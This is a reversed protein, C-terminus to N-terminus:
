VQLFLTANPVLGEEKLTRSGEGYTRNPWASKIHFRTPRGKGEAKARYANRVQSLTARKSTGLIEYPSRSLEVSQPKPIAGLGVDDNGATDHDLELRALFHLM